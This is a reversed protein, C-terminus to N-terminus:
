PREEVLVPVVAPREQAPVRARRAVAFVLSAVLVPGLAMWLTVHVRRQRRTM